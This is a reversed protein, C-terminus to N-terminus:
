KLAYLIHCRPSSEPFLKYLECKHGQEIIYQQKDLLFFYELLRGACIFRKLLSIKLHHLLNQDFEIDSIPNLSLSEIFYKKYSQYNEFKLYKLKGSIPHFVENSYDYGSKHCEAKFRTRYELKKLWELVDKNDKWTITSHSAINKSSLLQIVDLFQYRMLIDFGKKSLPIYQNDTKHYCCPAHLLGKIKKNTCFEKMIFVSLDGCTHLASLICNESILKGLSNEIVYHNLVAIGRQEAVECLKKQGEVVVCNRYGYISRLLLCLNGKGGGVDVIESCNTQEVMGKIVPMYLECENKKKLGIGTTQWRNLDLPTVKFQPITVEFKRNQLLNAFEYYSHNSCFQIELKTLSDAWSLDILWDNPHYLLNKYTLLEQLIVEM